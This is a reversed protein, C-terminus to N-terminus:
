GRFLLLTIVSLQLFLFLCITIVISNKKKYAYWFFYVVIFIVIMNLSFLIPLHSAEPLYSRVLKPIADPLFIFFLLLFGILSHKLIVRGTPTGKAEM